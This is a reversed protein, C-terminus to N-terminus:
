SIMSNFSKQAIDKIPCTFFIDDQRKSFVAYFRGDKAHLFYGYISEQLITFDEMVKARQKFYENFSMKREEQRNLVLCM